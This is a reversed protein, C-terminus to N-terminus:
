AAVGSAAQFQLRCLKAYIGGRAVLEGHRGEEVVRGQHLVVIRDANRVTVLRHAVIVATRGELLRDTAEQILHETEMDIYSTAEDLVVVRPDFSLARALSILQREGASLAVGREKVDTRRGQPFRDLHVARIWAEIQEDSIPRSLRINDEITGAFLFVDQGVWGFARRLASRDYEQIPRGDLLISGQKLEYFGLLLNILTTKGAGTFGVIALKEGPGARFSVDELVNRAGDYSFTVNRFEIEGRVAELTAGGGAPEPETDLIKFVRESSAMAAQLINYKESLDRLPAFLKTLCYWFAQFAGFTLAGEVIRSGGYWLLMGTLLAGSLEIAPLFLSYLFVSGITEQCFDENIKEFKEEVLPQRSFMKIIRMGQVSESLYANVRALKRRLERYKERAFKRFVLVIVLILPIITLSVATLEWSIYFMVGILGSVMVVDAVFTVLGSTFLENLNEIDNTVRVVLRGVPNKDFFSVPLRELHRFLRGRMDLIVRQGAVSTVFTSIFEVCGVLVISGCFAAVWVWLGAPDRNAIPGDLAGKLLLPGVLEGAIGVFVLALSIAVLGRHPKLYGLFRRMLRADYAKGLVEEEYYEIM